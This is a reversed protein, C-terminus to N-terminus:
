DVAVNVIPKPDLAIKRAVVRPLPTQLDLQVGKRETWLEGLSWNLSIRRCRRGGVDTLKRSPRTLKKLSNRFTGHHIHNTMAAFGLYFIASARVHGASRCFPSARGCCPMLGSTSRGPVPPFATTSALPRSNGQGESTMANSITVADSDRICM